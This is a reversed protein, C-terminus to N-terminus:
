LRMVSAVQNNPSLKKTETTVNNNLNQQVHQITCFIQPVFREHNLCLNHINKWSDRIWCHMKIPAYTKVAFNKEAFAFLIALDHFNLSKFIKYQVTTLVVVILNICFAKRHNNALEVKILMSQLGLKTTEMLRQMKVVYNDRESDLLCTGLVYKWKRIYYQKFLTGRLHFLVESQYKPSAM